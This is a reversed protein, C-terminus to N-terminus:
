KPIMLGLTATTMSTSANSPPHLRDSIIVQQFNEGERVSVDFRDGQIQQRRM